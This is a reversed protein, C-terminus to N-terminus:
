VKRRWQELGKKVLEGGNVMGEKMAKVSVERGLSEGMVSM